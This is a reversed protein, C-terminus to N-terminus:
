MLHLSPYFLCPHFIVQPMIGDVIRQVANFEGLDIFITSLVSLAQWMTPLLLTRHSSSAARLAISFGKEPVGSLAWLRAKLILLTIRRHIDPQTIDTQTTCIVTTLRSTQKYSLSLIKHFGSFLLLFLICVLVRVM